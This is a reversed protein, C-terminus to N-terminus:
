SIYYPVNRYKTVSGDTMYIDLGNFREKITETFIGTGKVKDNEDKIMLESGERFTRIEGCFDIGYFKQKTKEKLM